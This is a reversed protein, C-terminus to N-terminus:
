MSDEFNKLLEVLRKKETKEDENEEGLGEVYEKMINVVDVLAGGRQGLITIVRGRISPVGSLCLETIIYDILQLKFLGAELRRLFTM